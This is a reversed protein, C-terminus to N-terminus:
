PGKKATMTESHRVPYKIEPPLGMLRSLRESSEKLLTVFNASQEERFRYAPLTIVLSGIVRKNGDFIPCAFGVGEPTLEGDSFAYGNIRIDDLEKKIRSPNTVTRDTVKKLGSAVIKDAEQKPLFAMISRGGAGAHAPLPTGLPTHYRVPQNCQVQDVFMIQLERHDYLALIATENCRNVIERLVPLALQRVLSKLYVQQSIFMLKQGWGYEKNTPNFELIGEQALAQLTRHITSKPIDLLSSMERIPWQIGQDALFGLVQLANHIAKSGM